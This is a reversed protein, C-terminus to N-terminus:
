ACLIAAALCLALTGSCIVALIDAARKSIKIGAYLGGSKELQKEDKSEM